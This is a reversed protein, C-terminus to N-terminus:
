AAEEVDYPSRPAPAPPEFLADPEPEAVVEPKREGPEVLLRYRVDGSPLRDEGIYGDRARVREIEITVHTVGAAELERRTCGRRPNARLERLLREANTV